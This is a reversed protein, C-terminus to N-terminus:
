NTTQPSNMTYAHSIPQNTSVACNAYLLPFKRADSQRSKSNRGFIESVEFRPKEREMEDEEDLTSVIHFKSGQRRLIRSGRSLLSKTVSEPREHRVGAASGTRDDHSPLSAADVSTM